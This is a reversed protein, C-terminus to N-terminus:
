TLNIDNFSYLYQMVKNYDIKGLRNRLYKVTDYEDKTVMYFQRSNKNAYKERGLIYDITINLTDAIKILADNNISKEPSSKWERVTRENVGAIDALQKNTLFFDEMIVQIRNNM